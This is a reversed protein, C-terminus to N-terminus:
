SIDTMRILLITTNRQVVVLAVIFSSWVMPSMSVTEAEIKLKLSFTNWISDEILPKYKDLYHSLLHEGDNTFMEKESYAVYEDPSDDFEVCYECM